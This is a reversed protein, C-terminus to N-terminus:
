ILIGLFNIIIVIQPSQSELNCLLIMANLIIIFIIVPLGFYKKVSLSNLAILAKFILVSCFYDM